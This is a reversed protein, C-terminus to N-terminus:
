GWWWELKLDQLGARQRGGLSDGGQMMEQGVSSGDMGGRGANSVLDSLDVLLQTELGLTM